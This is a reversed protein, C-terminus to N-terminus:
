SIIVFSSSTMAAPRLRFHDSTVTFHSAQIYDLYECEKFGDLLMGRLLQIFELGGLDRFVVLAHQSSFLRAPVFWGLCTNHKTGGTTGNM